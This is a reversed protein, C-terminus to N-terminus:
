LSCRPFFVILKTRGPTKAPLLLETPSVGTVGVVAPDGVAVRSIKEVALTRLGGRQLMLAPQETGAPSVAPTPPLAEDASVTGAGLGLALLAAAILTKRDATMRM